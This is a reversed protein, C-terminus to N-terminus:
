SDERRQLLARAFDTELVTNRDLAVCKEFADKAEDPKGDLLAKRAIYYYAEAREDDTVAAALLEDPSTEGRFLDFLRDTWINDGRADTHAELLAETAESQGTERHLGYEWLAAYAANPGPSTRVGQYDSLASAADGAMEYAMGRQLRAIVNNAEMELVRSLDAAAEDFRSIRLYMNGRVHYGEPEDPMLEIVRTFDAIAAYYAGTHLYAVGRDHYCGPDETQKLGLEVARTFDRIAEDFEASRYHTRARGQYAMAFDSSLAIARTFEASAADFRELVYNAVGRDHFIVPDEPALAAAQDLAGLAEQWRGANSLVVHLRKYLPARSQSMQIARDLDALGEATEGLAARASGRVGFAFGVKPHKTVGHHDRVILGIAKEGDAVAEEYRGLKYKVDARTVLWGVDDPQLELARDFERIADEFRELGQFSYALAGHTVAWRPRLAVAREADKSAVDYRRLDRYRGSRALFFSPDTPDLEIAQGLLEIARDADPECAAQLRFSRAENAPMLELARDKHRSVKDLHGGTEGYMEALMLHAPWSDPDREIIGELYALAEDRRQLHKLIVARALQLDIANPHSTLAGDLRALAAEHDGGHFDSRSEFLCLQVAQSEAVAKAKVAEHRSASYGASLLGTAILLFLATAIAASTLKRRRVLKATRAPLSPRRALIPLDLLWRRLDDAFDKATTYRNARDKEVAKLVITELERPVKRILRRPPTPEKNLVCDLVERDDTGAFMPRFALLEYLTAGLAYVDARGDIPGLDEDVQEPSMYRATGLISRAATITRAESTRALGFDSIMLRNETSLLLNAPKIDRHIVGHEHAYHLADAVEAIWEAVRRYYAKDTGSSSGLRTLPLSPAQPKLSSPSCANPMPCQANPVAAERETAADGRRTDLASPQSSVATPPPVSGPQTGVSGSQTRGIVVNIAGSDQIESLIERLSRGEVLEMAYYLTGDAEGFDHVAIINTHKLRAALAAEREFRATADPRVAGLLAPLVKLAVVRDLKKQRAAYVIGMGGRGIEEIVEYDDLLENLRAAPVNIDVQQQQRRREGAWRLDDELAAQTSEALVRQRCTECTEIHAALAQTEEESLACALM